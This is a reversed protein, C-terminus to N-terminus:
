QPFVADRHAPKRHAHQHGLRRPHLAGPHPLRDRHPIRGGRRRHALYRGDGSLRRFELAGLLGVGSRDAALAQAAADSGPEYRDLPCHAADGDRPQPPFRAGNAGLCRLARPVAVLSVGPRRGHPGLRAPKGSFGRPRPDSHGNRREPCVEGSSARSSKAAARTGRPRRGDVRRRSPLACTESGSRGALQDAALRCLCALAHRIRLRAARREVPGGQRRDRSPPAHDCLEM